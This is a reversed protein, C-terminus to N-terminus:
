QDANRRRYTKQCVHFGLSEFLRASKANAPNINALFEEGPHRAMLATIAARAYGLHRHVRFVSIGIENAKTLYISGVVDRENRIMYWHRYPHARVFELHQGYTPMKRHSISEEPEREALLQFLYSEHDAVLHIPVLEVM